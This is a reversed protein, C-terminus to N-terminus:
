VLVEESLFLQPHVFRALAMAVGDKYGSTRTVVNKTMLGFHGDGHKTNTGQFVLDCVDGLEMGRGIHQMMTEPVIAMVTSGIGKTGHKDVVVVWGSTFYQEGIQQIGGEIGVGYDAGTARLAGMARNTAGLITEDSSMPQAAVRSAIDIGTAVWAVEPWVAEFAQKAAEIKVPNKSGIAIHM